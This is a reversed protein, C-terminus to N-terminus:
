ARLGTLLMWSSTCISNLLIYVVALFAYLVLGFVWFKSSMSHGLRRAQNYRDVPPPVMSPPSGDVGNEAPAVESLTAFGVAPPEYRFIAYVNKLFVDGIIWATLQDSSQPAFAGTCQGPNPNDTLWRFHTSSIPWSVGGFSLSIDVSVDCPYQYYGQLGGSQILQSGPINAYVNAVVNAPGYILETGSDIMANASSGAPVAVSQGQVTIETLDIVWPPYTTLNHYEIAGTYLSSNTYGLTLSGGPEADSAGSVNSFRTIHLAMLPEDWQGAKVLTFWFPTTKGNPWSFGILGQTSNSTLSGTQNEFSIVGFEQNPISFDGMQVVDSVLSGVFYGTGYSENFSNSLLESTSSSSANYGHGPNCKSYSSSPVWLDSSGTDIVVEVDIPPTGVAVVGFYS